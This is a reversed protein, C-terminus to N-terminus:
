GFATAVSPVAQVASCMALSNRKVSDTTNLKSPSAGPRRAAPRASSADSGCALSKRLMRKRNRGASCSGSEYM